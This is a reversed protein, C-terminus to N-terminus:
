EGKDMIKIVAANAIELATQEACFDPILEKMIEPDCTLWTQVDYLANVAVELNRKLKANESQLRFNEKRINEDIVDSM